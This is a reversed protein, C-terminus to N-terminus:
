FQVVSNVFWATSLRNAQTTDKALLTNKHNTRIYLQWQFAAFFLFLFKDLDAM